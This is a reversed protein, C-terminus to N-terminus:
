SDWLLVTVSCLGQHQLLSSRDVTSSVATGMSGPAAPHQRQEGLPERSGAQQGVLVHHHVLLGELRHVREEVHLDAGM